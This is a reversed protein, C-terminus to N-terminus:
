LEADMYFYTDMSGAPSMTGLSGNTRLEPRYSEKPVPSQPTPKHGSPFSAEDPFLQFYRQCKLLEEGYDPPPDCLVWAGAQQRALTQETGKELKVAIIEASSANYCALHFSRASLSATSEFTIYHLEPTNATQTTITDSVAIQTGGEGTRVRLRFDSANRILASFVYWGPPLPNELIQLMERNGSVSELKLFGDKHTVKCNAGLKWRDIGYGAGTYSLQTRQNVPLKRDVNSQSETSLEFHGNILLNRGQGVAPVKKALEGNTYSVSAKADLASKVGGSAVPNTSLETPQADISMTSVHSGDGCLLGTLGTGTTAGIEDIGGGAATWSTGDSSTELIHSSNLRLYRFGGGAAPLQVTREVGLEELADILDNYRVKVAERILRDFLAKNEAATGTLRDPAATVGKTSIDSDTIKYDSISM